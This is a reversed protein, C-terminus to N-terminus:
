VVAGDERGLEYAARHPATLEVPAAGPREVRV